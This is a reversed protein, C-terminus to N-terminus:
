GQRRLAREDTGRDEHELWHTQAGRIYPVVLTVGILRPITCTIGILAWLLGLLVPTLVKVQVWAIGRNVRSLFNRIPRKDSM